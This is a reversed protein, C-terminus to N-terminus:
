TIQRGTYRIFFTAPHSRARLDGNGLIKIEKRLIKRVLQSMLTVTQEKQDTFGNSSNM